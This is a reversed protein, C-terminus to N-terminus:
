QFVVLARIGEETIDRPVLFPLIVPDIVYEPKKNIYNDWQVQPMISTTASITLPDITQAVIFSGVTWRRKYGQTQNCPTWGDATLAKIASQLLELPEYPRM